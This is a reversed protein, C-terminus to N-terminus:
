LFTTNPKPAGQTALLNEMFAAIKSRAPEPLDRAGDPCAATCARCGICDDPDTVSFNMPDIIGVPCKEACAGCQQCREPHALVPAAMVVGYPKYDGEGPITIELKDLSSAGQVKALVAQAFRKADARDEADPRGAGLQRNQSHESVFAAAAAVTFGQARLMDAAERVADDYHRNGYVAVPCVVAGDAEFLKRETMTEVVRGFFVPSFFFVLDGKGFRRVRRAEPMTLDTEELTVGPTGRLGALFARAVRRTGGTPSFYVFHIREVLM